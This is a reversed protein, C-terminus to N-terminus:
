AAENEPQGPKGRWSWVLDFGEEAAQRRAFAPALLGSRRVQGAPIRARRAVPKSTVGTEVGGAAAICEAPQKKGDNARGGSVSM